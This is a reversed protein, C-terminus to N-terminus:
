RNNNIKYYLEYLTKLFAAQTEIRGLYSKEKNRARIDFRYVFLPDRSYSVHISKNEIEGIYLVYRKNIPQNEILELAKEYLRHLKLLGHIQGFAEHEKIPKAIRAGFVVYPTMAKEYLHGSCSFFTEFRIKWFSTLIHVLPDDIDVLVGSCGLVPCIKYHMDQRIGSPEIGQTSKFLTQCRNCVIM